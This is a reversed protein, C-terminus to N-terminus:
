RVRMYRYGLFYGGLIQEINKTGYSRFFGTIFFTAANDGATELMMASLSPNRPLEGLADVDHHLSTRSKYLTTVDCDDM